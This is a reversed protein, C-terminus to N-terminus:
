NITFSYGGPLVVKSSKSTFLKYCVVAIIATALIAMVSALTLAEGGVVNQKEELTLEKM